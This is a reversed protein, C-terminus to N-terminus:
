LLSNRASTEIVPLQIDVRDKAFAGADEINALKLGFV